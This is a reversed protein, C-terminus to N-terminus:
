KSSGSFVMWKDQFHLNDINNLNLQKIEDIFDQEKDNLDITFHKLEVLFDIKAVGEATRYFDTDIGKDINHWADQWVLRFSLLREENNIKEM